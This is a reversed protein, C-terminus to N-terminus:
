IEYLFKQHVSIEDETALTFTSLFVTPARIKGFTDRKDHSCRKLKETIDEQIVRIKNTCFILEIVNEFTPLINEQKRFILPNTVQFYGEIIYKTVWNKCFFYDKSQDTRLQYDQVARPIASPPSLPPIWAM